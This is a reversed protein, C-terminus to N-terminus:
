SQMIRLLAADLADGSVEMLDPVETWLLAARVPQDPYLRALVARYLALQAVYAPVDEIRRPPPRNTKYDAILVGDGTVALRDIQGSVALSPLGTRDIRGVIPVEARSGPSFLPLFKPDDLVRNIQDLMAAHEDASFERASRAFFRQAAQKRADRPIDPLSQLLRHVVSGRALAKRRDAENGRFRRVVTAEDYASAPSIPESRRVDPAIMGRLFGPIEITAADLKGDPKPTADSGASAFKRYHLVKGDGDDADEEVCHPTLADTILRYWCGDPMRQVGVSGCVVLREAARTMAVYLLRRYEDEAARLTTQRARAVPATDDDKRPAWVLRDPAGPPANDQPLAFVRPQHLTPGAPTTTTDALVVVRAELGKAGHVTMVRVEDRVMEMDRKIEANATRLWHVFGQLSPTERSEFDLALQLFEDLPDAAEPGLRKLFSARGGGAGLLRAYFAFPTDRRAEAALRDLRASVAGFELDNARARLAERLTGKRQWALAFLQEESLGFLPSKLVIALALDDRPLLLADALALLDMVAIHETLVLRDAGAVPIDQTKLARIIAEFLPGRQRVLVLVEGPRVGHQRWIGVTRAIRQALKVRPTHENTTDFPADWPEVPERKDPEVLPWIEVFGPAAGELAMHPKIGGADSTVSAFIEQERFV